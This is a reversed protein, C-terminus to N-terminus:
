VVSKRDETITLNGAAIDGLGEALHPILRDRPTPIVVVHVKLHKTKLKKNLHNEFLKLMDYTAGKPIAGDLFYFTKSYPVLARIAREDVMKDFDGSWKQNIFQRVADGQIDAGMAPYPLYIGAASIVGWLIFIKFFSVCDFRMKVM